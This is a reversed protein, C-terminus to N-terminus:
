RRAEVAKIRSRTEKALQANGMAVYCTELDTLYEQLLGKGPDAEATAISIQYMPEAEKYKKQKFYTQGLNHAVTGEFTIRAVIDRYVALGVGSQIQQVSPIPAVPINRILALAQQMFREAEAYNGLTAHEMGVNNTLRSLKFYNPPTQSREAKLQQTDTALSEEALHKIYADSLAPLAQAQCYALGSMGAAIAFLLTITIKEIRSGSYFTPRLRWASYGAALDQFLSYRLTVAEIRAPHNHLVKRPCFQM